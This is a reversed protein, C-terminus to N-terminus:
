CCRAEVLVVLSSSGGGGGEGGEGATLGEELDNKIGEIDDSDGQVVEEGEGEEEQSKEVKEAIRNKAEKLEAPEEVKQSELKAAEEKNDQEQETDM